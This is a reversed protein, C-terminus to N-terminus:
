AWDSNTFAHLTLSSGAKMYIGHSPTGALYHLVRKVAQWNCVTPQHMFLPLRSVVFSIDLRTFALYQLSGVISMYQSADTLPDSDKLTLKSTTQMPTTVPKCDLM